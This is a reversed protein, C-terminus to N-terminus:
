MLPFSDNMIRVVTPIDPRFSNDVNETSANYEDTEDEYAPFVTPAPREEMEMDDDVPPAGSQDADYTPDPAEIVLTSHQGRYPANM